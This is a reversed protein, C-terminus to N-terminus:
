IQIPTDRFTTNPVSAPATGRQPDDPDSVPFRARAGPAAGAPIPFAAFATAIVVATEPLDARTVKGPAIAEALVDSPHRRTV